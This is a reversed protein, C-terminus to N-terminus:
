DWEYPQQAHNKFNCAIVFQRTTLWQPSAASQIASPRNGTPFPTKRKTVAYLNARSGLRNHRAAIPDFEVHYLPRSWLSFSKERRIAPNGESMWVNGHIAWTYVCASKDWLIFTPLLPARTAKRTRIGRNLYRSNRQTRSSAYICHVFCVLLWLAVNASMKWQCLLRIKVTKVQLIAFTAARIILQESSRETLCPRSM